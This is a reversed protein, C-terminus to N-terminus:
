SVAALVATYDPEIGPNAGVWEYTVNGDPGVVYVARKSATYGPVGAFNELVGGYAKSVAGGLDSLLPYTVGTQKAFAGNAFIGDTSVGLVVANAANLTTLQDRFSCLEKECVGTFAAPYFALIVKKGRLDALSVAKREHSTLTFPPAAHGILSM